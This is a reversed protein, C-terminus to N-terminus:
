LGAVIPIPIACGDDQDHTSERLPPAHCDTL